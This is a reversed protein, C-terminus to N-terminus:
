NNRIEYVNGTMTFYRGCFYAEVNGRKFGAPLRGRTIIHIGKGSPSVETYSMMAAVIELAWTALQGNGNFCNDLDIGVYPDAASFVFGLGSIVGEVDAGTKGDVHTHEFGQWENLFDYAVSYPAWTSPNNSMAPAETKPNIPVKKPKQKGPDDVAKWVIWQPIERLETPINGIM